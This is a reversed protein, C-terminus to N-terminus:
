KNIDRRVKLIMFGDVLDLSAEDLTKGLLTCDHDMGRGGLLANYYEEIEAERPINLDELLSQFHKPIETEATKITLEFREETLDFSVDFQYYQHELFYGILEKMIRTAKSKESIM